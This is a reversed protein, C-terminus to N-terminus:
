SKTIVNNISNNTTPTEGGGTGPAITITQNVTGPTGGSRSIRVGIFKTAGPAITVIGNSTFDGTAPNFTWNSNDLTYTDPGITISAAGSSTVVLGSGVTYVTTNFVIVGSTASVGANRIGVVMDTFGGSAVSLTTFAQPAITLDPIGTVNIFTTASQNTGNGDSVTAGATLSSGLLILEPSSTGAKGKVDFSFTCLAGGVPIVGANNRFFLNHTGSGPFDGLFSWQGCPDILNIPLGPVSNAVDLYVSSFTIQVSANGVPIVAPGNNKMTVNLKGVAGVALSPPAPDISVAQLDVTQAQVRSISMFCLITAMLVIRGIIKKFIYNSQKM